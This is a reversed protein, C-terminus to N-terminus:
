INQLFKSLNVDQPLNLKKRLRYRGMEVAKVSINNLTAIEKSSLNLRLLASLRKENETLDPFKDQLQYFYEHNVKEVHMQFEQLENRTKLNQNLKLILENYTKAQENKDASKVKRLCSKIDQILENKHIIHLAFNVLENKKNELEEKLLIKEKKEAETLKKQAEHILKNKRMIEKDQRIRKKQTRYIMFGFVLFLFLGSLSAYLQLKSIKDKHEWLEIEKDKRNSEYQAELENIQNQREVDYVSDKIHVYEKFLELSKKYIGMKEYATSAERKNEIIFQTFNHKEAIIQSKNFYELAKKYNGKRVHIAGINSLAASKGQPENFFKNTELSQQYYKLAKDLDKIDSYINGINNLSYVILVTDKLEKASQLAQNYYNLAKEYDIECYANGLGLQMYAIEDKKNLSELIRLADIYHDIAVLDKGWFEYIRGINRDLKAMLAKDNIKTAINLSNNFEKLAENDFGKRIYVLGKNLYAKAMGRDYHIKKALVQSKTLLDIAKKYSSDQMKVGVDNMLIVKNSDDPMKELKKLLSDVNDKACTVNIFFLFTFFISLITKMVM